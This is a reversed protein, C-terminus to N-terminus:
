LEVKMSLFITYSSVKSRFRLVDKFLDHTQRDMVILENKTKAKASLSSLPASPQDINFYTFIRSHQGYQALM